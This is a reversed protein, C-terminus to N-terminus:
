APYFPVVVRTMYVTPVPSVIPVARRSALFVNRIESVEAPRGAFFSFLVQSFVERSVLVSSRFSPFNSSLVPKKLTADDSRLLLAYVQGLLSERCSEGPSSFYSTLTSLGCSTRPYFPCGFPSRSHYPVQAHVLVCTLDIPYCASFFSVFGLPTPGGGLPFIFVGVPHIFVLVTIQLSFALPGAELDVQTNVPFITTIRYTVPPYLYSLRRM